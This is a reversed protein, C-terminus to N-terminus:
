VQNYICYAFTPEIIVFFERSSDMQRIVMNARDKVPQTLMEVNAENTKPNIQVLFMDLSRDKMKQPLPIEILSYTENGTRESRLNKYKIRVVKGMMRSWSGGTVMNLAFLKKEVPEMAMYPRSRETQRFSNLKVGKRKCTVELGIKNGMGPTPSFVLEYYAATSKKVRSVLKEAASGALYQGGSEHALFKLSMEGSNEGDEGINGPNVTYLVSGGENIAHVVNYLDRFLRMERTENKEDVRKETGAGEKPEELAKFAGNAIGESILFVVKPRRMTKLAYKFRTLFHSFHQVQTKYTLKELYKSKNALDELSTINQVPDFTDTDAEYNWERTLHLNKDWKGAPFKLENIKNIINEKSEDPGAVHRPGGVARNELVIFMDEPSGNEIIDVTIEKARRYGFFSNFVSDIIIFVARSPQKATVNEKAKEIEEGTHQFNFPIFRTIEVPSGNAHIEFDEKKLDFVPNGGADVAFAPILMVDVSVKHIVSDIETDVPMSARCLAAPLFLVTMLISIKAIYKFM